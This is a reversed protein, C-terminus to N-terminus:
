SSKLLYNELFEKNALMTIANSPNDFMKDIDDMSQGYASPVGMSMPPLVFWVDVNFLQWISSTVYM